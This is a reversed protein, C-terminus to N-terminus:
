ENIAEYTKHFIDPKCPYLEYDVGCIVYDGSSVHMDGELTHIYLEKEDIYLFTDRDSFQEAWYIVDKHNNGDYWFAEIEVPKKRYKM